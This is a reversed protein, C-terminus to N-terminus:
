LDDCVVSVHRIEDKGPRRTSAFGRADQCHRPSQKARPHLVCNQLEVSGIVSAYIDHPIPDLHKRLFLDSQWWAPVLDNQQILCVPAEGDVSSRTVCGSRIMGCTDHLLHGKNNELQNSAADIRSRCKLMDVWEGAVPDTVLSGSLRMYHLLHSVPKCVAYNEHANM